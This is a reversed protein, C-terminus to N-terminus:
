LALEKILFDTFYNAGEENLHSCNVFMTDNQIVRSYDKFNPIRNQLQKTYNENELNLCFPACFFTIDISKEKQLLSIADFNANREVIKLPLTANKKSVILNNYPVFGDDFNLAAKKNILTAFFERFGIKYDNTAYRYFPIYYNYNYMSDVQKLHNKITENSRIYPLAQSRVIDSSSEINFIYDVQIFVKKITAEQEGLLELFFRIDALKAAQTGLNLTRKGTTKEIKSAIISNEVRSSGLFVYDITDKASLSLIYQTKNRVNSHEYVSTYAVDILFM